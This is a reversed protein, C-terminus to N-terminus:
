KNLVNDEFTIKAFARFTEKYVQQLCVAMNEKEM